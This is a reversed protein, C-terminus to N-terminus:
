NGRLLRAIEEAAMKDLYTVVIADSLPAALIVIQLVKDEVIIAMTDHVNEMTFAELARAGDPKLDIRLYVVGAADQLVEASRVDCNIIPVKITVHERLDSAPHPPLLQAGGKDSESVVAVGIRSSGDKKDHGSQGCAVLLAAIGAMLASLYPCGAPQRTRLKVKDPEKMAFLRMASGQQGRPRAYRLVV